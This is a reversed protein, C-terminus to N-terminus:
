SLGADRKTNWARSAEQRLWVPLQTTLATGILAFAMRRLAPVRLVVVAAGVAAAGLVVNAVTRATEEKM